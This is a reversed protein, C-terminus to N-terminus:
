ILTQIITQLIIMDRTMLLKDQGQANRTMDLRMRRRRCRGYNKQKLM